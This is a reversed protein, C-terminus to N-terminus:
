FQYTLGAIVTNDGGDALNIQYGGDAVLNKNFFYDSGLAVYEVRDRNNNDRAHVYGVNPRLGFDTVYAAMAEFHEAKHAGNLLNHSEGYMAAVYASNADYKAGVGWFEANNGTWGARKQDETVASTAYTVITSVGSDAIDSLGASFGYGTGHQKAPNIDSTDTGQYQAGFNVGDALGFANATRLTAVGSTRGTLFSDTGEYSDGGFESLVDTYAGVDYAIGYNRGYDFSVNHGFDLGAFALRTSVSNQSGEAKSADFQGEYQGFGTLDSAIQTEGRFGLRAYTGDADKGETWGHTAKVKGYLDLKNGDKNFIETAYASTSGVVVLAM